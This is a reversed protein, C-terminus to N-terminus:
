GLADRRSLHVPCAQFFQALAAKVFGHDNVELADAM